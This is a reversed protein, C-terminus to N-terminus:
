LMVGEFSVHSAALKRLCSSEKIEFKKRLAKSYNERELLALETEYEANSHVSFTTADFVTRITTPTGHCCRCLRNTGSFCEFLGGISHAALSDACLFEARVTAHTLSGKYLVLTGVTELVTLEDVLSSLVKLWGFEKQDRSHFLSLLLTSEFRSSPELLNAICCYIAGLKYRKSKNGIPCSVVFDDYYLIISIRNEVRDHCSGDFISSIISVMM